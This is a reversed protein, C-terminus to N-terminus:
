FPLDNYILRGAREVFEPRLTTFEAADGFFSTLSTIALLRAEVYTDRSCPQYGNEIREYFGSEAIPTKNSEVRATFALGNDWFFITEFHRGPAVAVFRQGSKHTFFQIPKM